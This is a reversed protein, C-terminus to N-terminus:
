VRFEDYQFSKLKPPSPIIIPLLPQTEGTSIRPPPPCMNTSSDSIQSISGNQSLGRSNQYIINETLTCDLISGPDENISAVPTDAFAPPCESIHPFGHSQTPSSDNSKISAMILSSKTLDLTTSSNILQGTTGTISSMQDESSSQSANQVRPIKRKVGKSRDKRYHVGAFILLNLILLSVGISITVLLATSYSIYPMANQPMTAEAIISTNNPYVAPNSINSSDNKNSELRFIPSSPTTTPPIIYHGAMLSLPRVSGAYLDQNDHGEFLHHVVSLEQFDGEGSNKHSNQLSM